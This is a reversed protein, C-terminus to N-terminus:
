RTARDVITLLISPSQVGFYHCFVNKGVEHGMSPLFKLFRECPESTEIVYRDSWMQDVQAIEPPSFRHNLFFIENKEGINEM